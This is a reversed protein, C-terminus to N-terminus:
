SQKRAARTKAHKKKPANSSAATKKAPKKQTGSKGGFIRNWGEAFRETSGTHVTYGTM